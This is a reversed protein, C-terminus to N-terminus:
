LLYQNYNNCSYKRVLKMKRLCAFLTKYGVFITEILDINALRTHKYEIKAVIVQYFCNKDHTYNEESSVVKPFVSYNKGTLM